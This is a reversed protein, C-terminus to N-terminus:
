KALAGGPMFVAAATYCGYGFFGLALLMLLATLGRLWNGLARHGRYFTLNVLYVSGFSLGTVVLGFVFKLLPPGLPSAAAGSGSSVLHGAFALLAVAAGGNLLMLSRLIENAGSVVSRLLEVAEASQHQYAALDVQVKARYKEFMLSDLNGQDDSLEEMGALYKEYAALSLEKEGRSIAANAEARLVAILDKNKM